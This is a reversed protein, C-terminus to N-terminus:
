ILNVKEEDLKFVYIERNWITTYKSTSPNFKSNVVQYNISTSSNTNSKYSSRNTKFSEKKKFVSFINSSSNQPSTQPTNPFSKTKSSHNLKAKEKEISSPIFEMPILSYKQYQEEILGKDFISEYNEIFFIILSKGNLLNKLFEKSTVKSKQEILFPVFCIGLNESSM